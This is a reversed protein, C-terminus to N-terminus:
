NGNSVEKLKETVMVAWEDAFKRVNEPPRSDHDAYCQSIKKSKMLYEVTVFPKDKQENLRIFGIICEGNFMKKDYGMKGVCHHLKSGERILDKPSEPILMTYENGVCELMKLGAAKQKFKKYFERREKEDLKAKKSAWENVRLDHMTQFDKPYLNKTDTMDLGLSVCADWYDRYSRIKGTHVAYEYLRIRNPKIKDIDKFDKTQKNCHRKWQLFKDAEFISMNNDFAYMTAQVGYTNVDKANERLFNIFNKDKKCKKMLQISPNIGMKGFYETAPDNNYMKLYKFLQYCNGSFGCYKYKDCKFLDDINIIPAFINMIKETSWYDFDALPKYSYGYWSSYRAKNESEDFIVKYGAMGTYYINKSIAMENNLSKREVETYKVPKDKRKKYAWTRIIVDDGIVELWAVFQLGSHAKEYIHSIIPQPTLNRMFNCDNKLEPITM